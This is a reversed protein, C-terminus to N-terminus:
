MEMQMVKFSNSFHVFIQVTTPPASNEKTIKFVIKGGNREYALAGTLGKVILLSINKVFFTKVSSSSSPPRM